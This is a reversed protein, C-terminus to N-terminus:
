LFLFGNLASSMSILLINTELFSGYVSFDNLYRVPYFSSSIILVNHM